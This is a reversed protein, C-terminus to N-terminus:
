EIKDWVNSSASRQHTRTLYVRYRTEGNSNPKATRLIGKELLLEALQQMQAPKLDFTAAMQNITMSRQRIIKNLMLDLPEPLDLVEALSIGRTQPRKKLEEQCRTLIDPTM